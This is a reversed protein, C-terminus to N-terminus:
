ALTGPAAGLGELIKEVIGTSKGPGGKARVDEAAKNMQEEFSLLSEQEGPILSELLGTGGAALEPFEAWGSYWGRTLADIISM